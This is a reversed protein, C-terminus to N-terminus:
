QDAQNQAQPQLTPPPMLAKVIQDTQQAGTQQGRSHRAGHDVGNHAAFERAGDIKQIRQNAEQQHATRAESRPQVVFHFALPEGLLALLLAQQDVSRAHRANRQRPFDAAVFLQAIFHDAKQIVIRGLAAAIQHAQRHQATSFIGSPNYRLQVLALVDLNRFDRYGHGRCVTQLDAGCHRAPFGGADVAANNGAQAFQDAAFQGHALHAFDRNGIQQATFLHGHIRIGHLLGDAIANHQYGPRSTRNAALQAPLDRQQM